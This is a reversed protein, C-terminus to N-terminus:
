PRRATPDPAANPHSVSPDSSAARPLRFRAAGSSGLPRLCWQGSFVVQFTGQETSHPGQTQRIPFCSSLTGSSARNADIVQLAEPVRPRYYERAERGPRSRNRHRRRRAWLRSKADRRLQGGAAEDSLAQDGDKSPDASNERAMPAALPAPSLPPARDPIPKDRRGEKRRRHGLSRVNDRLRDEPASIGCMECRDDVVSFRDSM